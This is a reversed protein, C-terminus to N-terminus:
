RWGQISGNQSHQLTLGHLAPMPWSLVAEQNELLALGENAMARSRPHSKTCSHPSICLNALLVNCHFQNRDVMCRQKQWQFLFGPRKSLGGTYVTPTISEGSHSKSSSNILVQFTHLVDLDKGLSM